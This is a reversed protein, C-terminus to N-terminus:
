NMGGTIQIDVGTLYSADDSFLFLVPGIVEPIGGYRKLPSAGVMQEAVVQPNKDYYVSNALAQLEIQRTWMFGPGIFAPSVSNVRINYPALDKATIRSMHFVASKSCAYAVMNPPASHAAMSATNVIVGGQPSQEIMARSVARLVNFVGILNIDIVRKFDDVPYEHTMAFEGQYGANNFLYDIRGFDAKVSSVVAEVQEYKTVDVIFSEAKVDAFSFLQWCKM